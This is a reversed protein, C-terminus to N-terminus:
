GSRLEKIGVVIFLIGFGKRLLSDEVNGCVFLAAILAVAAGCSSAILASPIDILKNRIHGVLAALASALFYLLNVGQSLSQAVGLVGTLYLMLLTGGGIGAGTLLGTALGVAVAIIFAPM